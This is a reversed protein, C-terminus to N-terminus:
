VNPIDKYADRFEIWDNRSYLKTWNQWNIRYEKYDSPEVAHLRWSDRIKIRDPFRIDNLHDLEHQAIRALFGDFKYELLHGKRDVAKIELSKSREVNGCIGRCSLCGERGDVTEQSQNYIIPNIFVVLKQKKNNAFTANVDILIIRKAIGVQPAALGVTQPKDKATDKNNAIDYMADVISQLHATKLEESSVEKSISNLLNSYKIPDVLCLKM